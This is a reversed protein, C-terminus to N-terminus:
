LRFMSKSKDTALTLRSTEAQAVSSSTAATWAVYLAMEPITGIILMPEKGGFRFRGRGRAEVYLPRQRGRTRRVTITLM